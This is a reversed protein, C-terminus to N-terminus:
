SPGGNTNLLKLADDIFGATCDNPYGSCELVYEESIDALLNDDIKLKSEYAGVASFVWCSGCTGQDGAGPLGYVRWDINDANAVRISKQSPARASSVQDKKM